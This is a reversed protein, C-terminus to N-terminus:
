ARYQPFYDNIPEWDNGESNEYRQRAEVLRDYADPDLIRQGIYFPVECNPAFSRKYKYIGDKAKYGGGLVFWKLGSEMGWKIIEYKLLDNPRLHYASEDTGGLFSYAINNSYLVLEASITRGDRLTLFYQYRGRLSENLRSFFSPEFRYSPKAGRRTMTSYYIELFDRMRKGECDREVSLGTSRAHNVNKRVKHEFDMWMEGPSIDLRRVINTNKLILQGPYDARSHELELAFRIFETVVQKERQWLGLAEWFAAVEEESVGGFLYPGGYGYPTTTDRYGILEQPCYKLAGLDRLIFPYIIGGNEGVQLACFAKESTETLLSVYEPKIMPENNCDDEVVNRWLLLDDPKSRDLVVLTRKEVARQQRTHSSGM